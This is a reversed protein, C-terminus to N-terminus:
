NRYEYSQGGDPQNTSYSMKMSSTGQQYGSATGPYASGSVQSATIYGGPVTGSVTGSVNGLPQYTSYGKALGTGSSRVAQSSTGGSVFATTGGPAIYNSQAMAVGRGSTSGAQYSTGGNVAHTTGGLTQTAFDYLAEHPYHVIQREFPVYEIDHKVIEKDIYETTSRPKYDVTYDTIHEVVTYGRIVKEVPVEEFIRVEEYDTITRDVPVKVVHERTQMEQIQRKYPIYFIQSEQPVDPAAPKPLEVRCPPCPPCNAVKDCPPCNAASFYGGQQQTQQYSM